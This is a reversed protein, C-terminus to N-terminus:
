TNYIHIIYLVKSYFVLFSFYYNILLLFYNFFLSIVASFSTYDTIHPIYFLATSYAIYLLLIYIIIILIYYNTNFRYIHLIYKIHYLFYLLLSISYACFKTDKLDINLILLFFKNYFTERSVNENFNNNKVPKKIFTTKDNGFLYNIISQLFYNLM